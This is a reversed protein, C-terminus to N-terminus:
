NNATLLFIPTWYTAKQSNTKADNDYTVSYWFLKEREREEGKEKHGINNM